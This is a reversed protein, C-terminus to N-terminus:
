DIEAGLGSLARHLAEWERRSATLLADSRSEWSNPNMWPNIKYTVGFHDPACMLYRAKTSMFYGLELRQVARKGRNSMVLWTRLATSRRTSTRVPFSWRHRSAYLPAM